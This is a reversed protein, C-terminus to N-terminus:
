SSDDSRFHTRVTATTLSSATGGGQTCFMRDMWTLEAEAEAANNVSDKHLRSFDVTRKIRFKAPTITLNEHIFGSVIASQALFFGGIWCPVLLLVLLLVVALLMLIASDNRSQEGPNLTALAFVLVAFTAFATFGIWIVARSHTSQTDM